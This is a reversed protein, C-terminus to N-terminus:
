LDIVYQRLMNDYRESYRKDKLIGYNSEIVKIAPVNNDDCTIFIRNLNVARFAKLANNLMDTGYGKNRETPRISFSIHGTDGTTSKNDGLRLRCMGLIHDDIMYLYTMSPVTNSPLNIIDMDAICKKVWGAYDDKELYMQVNNDGNISSEYYAFEEIYEKIISEHEIGPFILKTKKM